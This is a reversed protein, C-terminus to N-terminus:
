FNVRFSTTFIFDNELAVGNLNQSVPKQIVAELVWRRTVYQLGPSLWVSAGGSNQASQSSVRNKQQHLVNVEAVVYLFGPVGGSLERPWVRHQWSLDLRTENGSQFGNAKGNARYSLQSDIQFDLTQYTAVLGGFQDWAGSGNQLPPPLLGFRDNDEDDGTPATVGAFGALRFTRGPANDQHFTYRAFASADGLGRNERKIKNGFGNSRLRKDVYPLVGFVALKSNVGYGLVSIGATARRDRNAASPDGSSRLWRFQERFIFEGQAVPLATNFTIPAALSLSTNALLFVSLSASILLQLTRM